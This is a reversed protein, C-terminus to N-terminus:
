RIADWKWWPCAVEDDLGVDAFGRFCKHGNQGGHDAEVDDLIFLIARVIVVGFDGM